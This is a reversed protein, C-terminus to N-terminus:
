GDRLRTRTPNMVFCFLAVKPIQLVSVSSLPYASTISSVCRFLTGDALLCTSLLNLGIGSATNEVRGEGAQSCLFGRNSPGLMM